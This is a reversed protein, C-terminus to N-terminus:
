SPVEYSLYSCLKNNSDFSIFHLATATTFPLQTSLKGGMSRNLAAITHIMQLLIVTTHLIYIMGDNRKAFM